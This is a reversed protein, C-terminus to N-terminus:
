AVSSDKEDEADAQSRWYADFAAAIAANGTAGGNAETSAVSGEAEGEAPVAAPLAAPPTTNLYNLVLLADLPSVFMDSNTDIFAPPTETPTTLAHGGVTNLENIILLADIPSITSDDNVDLPQVPNTWSLVEQNAEAAAILKQKMTAYNDANALTHTTLNYVDIQENNADLIVVDRYQSPFSNLWVDSNGDNNKDEDQLWPIIRDTTAQTNGSEHGVQNIGLVNIKLDPRETALERTM